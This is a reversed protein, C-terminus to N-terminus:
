SFVGHEIRGLTQEVARAGAETACLALPTRGACSSLAQTLWSSAAQADEFVDKSKAIVRGLRVARETEEFSLLGESALRRDMTRRPIRLAAGIEHISLGLAAALEHLDSARVGEEIISAVKLDDDYPISDFTPM